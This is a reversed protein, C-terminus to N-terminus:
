IKIFLKRVIRIISTFINNLFKSVLPNTLYFIILIIIALIWFKFDQWFHKRIDIGYTNEEVTVLHKKSKLKVDFDIYGKTIEYNIIVNDDEYKGTENIVAVRQYVRILSDKSYLQSKLSTSLKNLRTKYEDVIFQCNLPVDKMPINMLSDITINMSNSSTILQSNIKTLSDIDQLLISLNINSGPIFLTDIRTRTFAKNVLSPYKDIQNQIGDHYRIIRNEAKQITKAPKTTVCSVTLLLLLLPVIINNRKM